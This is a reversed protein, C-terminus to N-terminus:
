KKHKKLFTNLSFKSRRSGEGMRKGIKSLLEGGNCLRHFFRWRRSGGLLFRIRYWRLEFVLRIEFPSLSVVLRCPSRPFRSALLFIHIESFQFKYLM